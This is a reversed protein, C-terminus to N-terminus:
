DYTKEEVRIEAWFRDLAGDDDIPAEPGSELLIVDFPRDQRARIRNIRLLELLALFGTVQEAKSSRDAPFLENFFLRSRRVVAQWIERMKGKVSIKERKLIHTIRGSLDNFRLQNQRAVRQSARWFADWSLNGADEAILPIGLRVPTEPLKLLCATYRGHRERLRGALMKCRRYELLKLVLEERPDENEDKDPSEKKPLLVRSKIHILTAAMLLFESAIEMDLSKQSDLYAIYQDTIQVIPIDYIDIRNKEILHYLLDLPGEFQDINVDLPGEASTRMM